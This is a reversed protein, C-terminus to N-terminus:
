SRSNSEPNSNTDRKTAYYQRVYVERMSVSGHNTKGNGSLFNPVEMYMEIPLKRYYEDLLYGMEKRTCRGVGRDYLILASTPKPFFGMIPWDCDHKGDGISVSMRIGQSPLLVTRGSADTFQDMIRNALHDDFTSAFRRTMIDSMDLPLLFGPPLISGDHERIAQVAVQSTIVPPLSTKRAQM